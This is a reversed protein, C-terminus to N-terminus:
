FILRIGQSTGKRVFYFDGAIINDVFKKNIICDHFDPIFMNYKRGSFFSKLIVHSSGGTKGKLFGVYELKDTLVSNKQLYGNGYSENQRNLNGDKDFSVDFDIIKVNKFITFNKM